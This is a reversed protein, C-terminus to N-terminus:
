RVNLTAVTMSIRQSKLHVVNIVPVDYLSMRPQEAKSDM